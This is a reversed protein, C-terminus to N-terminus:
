VNIMNQMLAEKSNNKKGKKRLGLLNKMGKIPNRKLHMNLMDLGKYKTKAEVLHKEADDLNKEAEEAKKIAEEANMTKNNEKNRANNNKAINKSLEAAQKAAEEAQKKAEEAQRRAEEAQRQAEENIRERDLIFSALQTTINIQDKNDNANNVNNLKLLEFCVKVIYNKIQEIHSKIGTIKLDLIKRIKLYNKLIEDEKSQQALNSNAIHALTINKNSVRTTTSRSHYLKLNKIIDDYENKYKKDCLKKEIIFDRLKEIMSIFRKLSCINQAQLVATEICKLRNEITLYQNLKHKAKISRLEQALEQIGEILLAITTDFYPSVYDFIFLYTQELTESNCETSLLAEYLEKYTQEKTKKLNTKKENLMAIKQFQSPQMEVEKKIEAEEQDTIRTARPKMYDYIYELTAEPKEEDNVMNKAFYNILSDALMKYPDTGLKSFDEDSINGTQLIIQLNRFAIIFNNSKKTKNNNSSNNSGNSGNKLKATARSM